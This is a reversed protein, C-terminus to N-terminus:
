ILIHYSNANHFNLFHKALHHYYLVISYLM